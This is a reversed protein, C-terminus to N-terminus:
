SDGLDDLDLNWAHIKQDGRELAAGVRHHGDLVYHAGQHTVVMPGHEGLYDMGGVPSHEKVEGPGYKDLHKRSVHSQTAYVPMTLDIPRFGGHHEWTENDLTGYTNMFHDVAPVSGPEKYGSYGVHEAPMIHEPRDDPSWDWAAQVWLLSM